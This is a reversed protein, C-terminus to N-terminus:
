PATGTASSRAEFHYRLGPRYPYRDVLGDPLDIGLGPATPPQVRGESVVLPAAMMETVFPNPQIPYELWRCNPSAFGMHYNAMLSGAGLWCHVAVTVGHQEALACVKRGELVGGVHAADPQVIDLAEAEFFPRLEHVTTCSEGGAIPTDCGRRCTAYGQVDTSACPEEYWILDLHDLARCAALAQRASWPEPNSGQVADLALGTGDGAAARAREAKALDEGVGDGGRIKWARFGAEAIARQEAVLGDPTADMGGSAYYPLAGHASGGLLEVVPRGVAKGCLDWLASEIASLTSIAIGFRGWYLSRSYCRRWLDGIEAPDRGVLLERYYLILARVVEPAFNGAYTEGIGVTGDDSTIRALAVTVGPLSGGSWRQVDEPPYEYSLLIPEVDVIRMGRADAVTGLEEIERLDGRGSGAATAM